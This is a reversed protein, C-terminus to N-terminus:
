LGHEHLVSLSLDLSKTCFSDRSLVPRPHQQLQSSSVLVNTPRESVQEDLQWRHRWRMKLIAVACGDEKLGPVAGPRLCGSSFM